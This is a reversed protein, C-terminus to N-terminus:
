KCANVQQSAKVLMGAHPHIWWVRLLLTCGVFVLAIKSLRALSFNNKLLSLIKVSGIMVPWTGLGFLLMFLMGDTASPLILCASLALYTLGCPLMGNIMGLILTTAGTKQQIAIGFYKKLYSTFGMITKDILPIRMGQFSFGAFIFLTGLVISIVQQYTNLHIFSGFAAALTGMLAYIFVRGSNYLISSLVFPRNRTVAMALPSCMGACHLSGALGMIIATYYM